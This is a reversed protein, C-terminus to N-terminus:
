GIVNTYAFIGRRKRLKIGDDQARCRRLIGLHASGIKPGVDGNGNRNLTRRRGINRLNTFGQPPKLVHDVYGFISAALQDSWAREPGGQARAFLIM